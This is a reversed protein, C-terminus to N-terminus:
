EIVIKRVDKRDGDIVTLLYIGAQANKLQINENFNTKNEFKSEFLKRGLL